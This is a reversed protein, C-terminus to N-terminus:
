LYQSQAARNDSGPVPIATEAMALQEDVWGAAGLQKVRAISAPTPGFSAQELLRAAALDATGTGTGPNDPSAITVSAQASASTSAVSTARVTVTAPSPVAAPATYAGSTSITGVTANGGNIGNVSWTVATNTAGSVSAVFSQTAGPALTASTPSVAVTVGPTPPQPPNATGSGVSIMVTESTTAGLGSQVVVLPVQTGAQMASASGTVRLETSSIRTTALPVGGFQAVVGETFNGGNLRLTFAGPAVTSPYSSWLHVGVQTVTM